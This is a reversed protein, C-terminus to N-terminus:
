KELLFKAAIKRVLGMPLISPLYNVVSCMEVRKNKEIAKMIKKAVTKPKYSYYPLLKMAMKAGWSGEQKKIEDYFGTNVMFPHVTTVHIDHRKLEHHMTESAVALAAKSAAYEGWTPLQFFVQGSCVNVIHGHRNSNKLTNAFEKSLGLPSLYNLQILRNDHYAITEQNVGFGANNVLISAEEFLKRCYFLLHFIYDGLVLDTSLWGVRTSWKTDYVHWDLEAPPEGIDLICVRQGDELLLKVLELGIGNSGGTVICISNPYIM